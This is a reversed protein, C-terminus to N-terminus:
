ETKMQSIVMEDGPRGNYYIIQLNPLAEGRKIKALIRPDFDSRYWGGPYPGVALSTTQIGVYTTTEDPKALSAHVGCVRPEWMGGTLSELKIEIRTATRPLVASKMEIGGWTSTLTLKLGRDTKNVSSRNVSSWSTPNMLAEPTVAISAALPPEPPTRGSENPMQALWQAMTGMDIIEVKAPDLKAKVECIIRPADGEISYLVFMAPKPYREYLQNLEALFRDLTLQTKADRNYAPTRTIWYHGYGERLVPVTKKGSPAEGTIHFLRAEDSGGNPKPFIANVSPLSAMKRWVDQNNCGWAFLEHLDLFGSSLQETYQLLADVKDPPMLDTHVYGAGTPAYCFRDNDTKTEYYYEYLVPFYRVYAPAICWNLPATGREPRTWAKWYLHYFLRLTDGENSVFAVYVKNGPSAPSQIKKQRFPFTMIPKLNAIFSGNAANQSHGMMHGFASYIAESTNWGFILAPPKLAEMIRSFLEFGAADGAASGVTAPLGSLNFIFSRLKFPVDAAAEWYFSGKPLANDDFSQAVSFATEKDCLPMINTLLWDYTAKRDYKGQKIYLVVPARDFIPKYSDYVAKAVPICFNHSAINFALIANDSPREDYLIIGNFLPVFTRLFSELTEKRRDVFEIGHRKSIFGSWTDCVDYHRLWVLPGGRNGMGQIAYVMWRLHFQREEM